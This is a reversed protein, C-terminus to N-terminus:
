RGKRAICYTACGVVYFLCLLVATANVTAPLPQFYKGALFLITVLFIDATLNVRSRVPVSKFVDLFGNVAASKWSEDKPSHRTTNRPKRPEVEM